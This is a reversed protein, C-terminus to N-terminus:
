ENAESVRTPGGIDIAIEEEDGYDEDEDGGGDNNDGVTSSSSSSAAAEEEPLTEFSDCTWLYVTHLFVNEFACGTFGAKTLSAAFQPPSPFERISQGLHHYENSAGFSMLAGIVPICYHVFASAAFALPGDRPEVFELIGIKGGPNDKKMVRRAERLASDRQKFNRIGFSITLKDFTKDPLHSLEEADGQLLTVVSAMRRELIKDRAIDLMKVSPDLGLVSGSITAPPAGEVRVPSSPHETTMISALKLAVDGTGTALDLVRDGPRVEMRACLIDKWMHHLGLSMVMNASDYYKAIGDFMKGSGLTEASDDHRNTFYFAAYIVLAAILIALGQIM